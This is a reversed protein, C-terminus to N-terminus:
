FYLVWRGSINQLKYESFHWEWSSAAFFKHQFQFFYSFYHKNEYFFGCLWVFSVVSRHVPLFCLFGRVRELSSRTSDRLFSPFGGYKTLGEIFHISFFLLYDRKVLVSSIWKYRLLLALAGLHCCNRSARQTHDLEGEEILNSTNDCAIDNVANDIATSNIWVENSKNRWGAMLWSKKLRMCFQSTWVFSMIELTWSAVSTSDVM